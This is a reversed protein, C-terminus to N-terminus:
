ACRAIVRVGIEVGRTLGAQRMASPRTAKAPHKVEAHKSSQESRRRNPRAEASLSHIVASGIESRQGAGCACRAKTETGAGADGRGDVDARANNQRGVVGGPILLLQADNEGVLAGVNALAVEIQLQEGAEVGGEEPEAGQSPPEFAFERFQAFGDAVAGAKFLGGAAGGVGLEQKFERSERAWGKCSNGHGAGTMKGLANLAKQVFGAEALGKSGAAAACQEGDEQNGHREKGGGCQDANFRGCNGTAAAWAADAPDLWRGTRAGLLDGLWGGAAAGAGSAAGTGGAGGDDSAM